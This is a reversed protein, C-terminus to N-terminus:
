RLATWVQLTKGKANEDTLADVAARAADRRNIRRKVADQSTGDEDMLIELSEEVFNDEYRGM